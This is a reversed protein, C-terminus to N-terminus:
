QEIEEQSDSLKAREPDEDGFHEVGGGEDAETSFSAPAASRRSPFKISQIWDATRHAGGRCYCWYTMGIVFLSLITVTVAGGATKGEEFLQSIAITIVPFIFFFFVIYLPAFLRFVRVGKGMRRGLFIPIRRLHPIPYWILVGTINFFLHALAVQLPDLGSAVLASLISSLTTGVNAGLILPYVQEIRIVGIGVWPTLVATTLSSSQLLMTLGAGVAIGIYGNMNVVKYVVRTTLGKLLWQAIWMLGLICIYCLILAMVVSVGGAVKDDVLTAGQRFWAPCNGTAKDCTVFGTHCTAKSEPLGDICRTPYWDPNDCSSGEAVLIIAKKNSIILKRTLPKVWKEMPGDWDEGKKTEAGDVILKTVHELYGTLVEFPLLIAVTMWNFLDHLCASAFAREMEEVNAFQALSVMDNTITTGINAGMVLYVGTEVTIVGDSVLAVVISTTTSSSQMLSTALAAVMVASVPNIHSGFLLGGRCGSLVKAGTGLLDLSFFFFYQFFCLGLIGLLIKGIEDPTHRCCAGCVEGWEAEDYDNISSLTFDEDGFKMAGKKRRRRRRGDDNNNINNDGSSRLQVQEDDM